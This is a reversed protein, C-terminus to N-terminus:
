VKYCYCCFSYDCKSCIALTGNENKIVPCQCWARPCFVVDKMANLARNLLLNDYKSFLEPFFDKIEKFAINVNCEVGPCTINNENINTVIYQHICKKCYIHSCNELKICHKGYCEDFCIACTYCNSEFESKRQYKDYNVFFIIPDLFTANYMARVDHQFISSLKFYNTICRYVMHVFSIDLTDKIQLFNLLDNRLFEFWFFLVEQGMNEMWIDDLKQCVFSLQWPSLWSTSICFNPAEKSPYNIPLQLHLRIPPLYKIYYEPFLDFDLNERVNQIRLWDNNATPFINYYCQIKDESIYSFEKYSYISSLTLVEDEQRDRNSMITESM